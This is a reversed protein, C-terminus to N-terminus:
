KGNKKHSVSILLSLKKTSFGAKTYKTKSLFTQSLQSVNGTETRRKCEFTQKSINFSPNPKVFCSFPSARLVFRMSPFTSIFFNSGSNKFSRRFFLFILYISLCFVPLDYFSFFSLSFLFICCLLPLNLM